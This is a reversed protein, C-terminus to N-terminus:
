QGLENLNELENTRKLHTRSKKLMELGNLQADEEEEQLEREVLNEIEKTRHLEHMLHSNDSLNNLNQNNFHNPRHNENAAGGSKTKGLACMNESYSLNHNNVLSAHSVDGNLEEQDVLSNTRNIMQQQQQAIKTEGPIVLDNKLSGVDYTIQKKLAVKSGEDTSQESSM